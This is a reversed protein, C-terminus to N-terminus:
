HSAFQKTIPMILSKFWTGNSKWEKYSIFALVGVKVGLMAFNWKLHSFMLKGAGSDNFYDELFKSDGTKNDHPIPGDPIPKGMFKCLPEWGDKVNWILLDEPPVVSKVYLNHKKYATRM